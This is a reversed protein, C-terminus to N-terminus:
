EVHRKKLGVDGQDAGACLHRFATGSVAAGVVRSITKSYNVDKAMYELGMAKRIRAKKEYKQLYNLKVNRM